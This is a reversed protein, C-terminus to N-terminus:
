STRTAHSLVLSMGRPGEPESSVALALDQGPDEDDVPHAAVGWTESMWAKSRAYIEDGHARMEDIRAHTVAPDDVAALDEALESYRRPAAICGHVGPQALSYRYCDAATVPSSVPVRTKHLMRGYCLNTFTLVGVGLESCRPFVASEAGRHAASHRVMVVDFGREAAAVALAREHTSIGIARVTGAGRLRTFTEQVEDLRGISRAWFALLVDIHSARLSALARSVDREISAPDAHYTGTVLVRDDRRRGRLFRTLGRLPPEWFFLNVGREHALAFDRPELGRAGSLGFPTICLGTRGLERRAPVHRRNAAPTPPLEGPPKRTPVHGELVERLLTAHGLLPDDQRLSATVDVLRARAGEDMRRLVLSLATRRTQVDVSDDFALGQLSSDGEGTDLADIAARRVGPHPDRVFGILERATTTPLFEVARLRLLPDDETHAARAWAIVEDPFPARLLAAAARRTSADPDHLLVGPARSASLVAQRVWPDDDSVASARAKDTLAGARDLAALARSRVLAHEVRALETLRGILGAEAAADVFLMLVPTPQDSLPAKLLLDRGVRGQTALRLAALSRTGPDPDELREALVELLAGRTPAATLARELGARRLRPDQARTATHVLDWSPAETANRMAWSVPGPGATGAALIAQATRVARPGAKALLREVAAPAYPMREDELWRAVDALLAVEACTALRAIAFERLAHHPHALYPVLRTLALAEESARALRAVVVAPDADDGLSRDPPTSEDVGTPQGVMIWPDLRAATRRAAVRVRWFPDATACELVRLAANGSPGERFRGAFLSAARRVRWSRDSRVARTAAELAGADGARALAIFAAERVRASVDLTADRLYPTLSTAATADLRFIAITRTEADPDLVIADRLRFRDPTLSPELRLIARQRAIASL